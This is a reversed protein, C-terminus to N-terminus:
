KPESLWLGRPLLTGQLHQTDSSYLDRDGQLHEIKAQLEQHENELLRLAQNM